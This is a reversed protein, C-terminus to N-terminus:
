EKRLLLEQIGQHAPTLGGAKQAAVSLTQMGLLRYLRDLRERQEASDVQDLAEIHREVTKVDGREIPGTLAAPLGLRFVNDLTGQLLPGVAKLAQERPIGALQYLELGAEILGVLYNSMVCSAAHYLAKQGPLIVLPVGGMAEVLEKGRAVAESQGELGFASGKLREAGSGPDAITQIPHMSLRLANETGPALLADAPLAGSTHVLLVKSDKAGFSRGAGLAAAIETVFSDPVTIFIIEAGEAGEVPDTTPTGAGILRVAEEARVMSRRVVGRVPYGQRHLLKGIATGVRGAGIIAVAPLM